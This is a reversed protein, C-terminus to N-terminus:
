TEKQSKLKGERYKKIEKNSMSRGFLQFSEGCWGYICSVVECVIDSDKEQGAAQLSFMYTEFVDYTELQSWGKTKLEKVLNMLEADPDSTKLAVEIRKEIEDNM